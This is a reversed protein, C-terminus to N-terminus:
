RSTQWEEMAADFESQLQRMREQWPKWRRDKRLGRLRWDEWTQELVESQAYAIAHM